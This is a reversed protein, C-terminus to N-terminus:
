QIRFNTDSRDNVATNSTWTVRIRGQTTAPGIVVWAFSGTTAASNTVAANILSYSSGGNRSVEIKVVGSTALNHNWRITQTSGVSWTVNTNPATVTVFATAIQFNANSTDSASGGTWVVRVRATTTTSGTVTWDFFGTTATQNAVSAAITTWSSGGNRSVDVRMTSGAGLNHTWAIRQISGVGWNEGGNPTTVTVAPAAIQFTSTGAGANSSADRATVRIRANATVPGASTWVCSRVGGALGTCGSVAAFTAGGDSSFAVDFSALAGNDSATWTVTTPRGATIIVGAPATVTVAPSTTDVVTVRVADSAQGGLGDRVTLTVEHVGLALPVTLTASTGLLTGDARRWEYSLPDGDPDTSGSGNLTVTQGLEITQDPGAAAIPARNDITTTTTATHSGGQGDSVTLSVTFTGVSAYAHTPSVGAGTSGDGFTWDYTLVDGDPDSSGAGSLAISQGRVGAYPGGAHATPPHNRAGFVAQVYPAPPDPAVTVTCPGTGACAGTWGLFRSTADPVATLTVTSGIRYPRECRTTEGVPTACLVDPPDLRVAGSVGPESGTVDLALTQPGRFVVNV